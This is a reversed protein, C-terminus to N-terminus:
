TSVDPEPGKLEITAVVKGSDSDTKESIKAIVMECQRYEGNIPWGLVIKKRLKADAYYPISVGGIPVPMTLTLGSEAIGESYGLIEDTGKMPERKMDLDTSKENAESVKKNGWYVPFTRFTKM